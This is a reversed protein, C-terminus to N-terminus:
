FPRGTRRFHVADIVVFISGLFALGSGIMFIGAPLIPVGTPDQARSVEMLVFMALAAGVGAGTLTLGFHRASGTLDTLIAKIAHTWDGSPKSSRPGQKLAWFFVLAGMLLAVGTIIVFGTQNYVGMAIVGLAGVVLLSAYVLVIARMPGAPRQTHM